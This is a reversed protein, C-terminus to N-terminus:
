FNKPLVKIQNYFGDRGWLWSQALLSPSAKSVRYYDSHKEITSGFTM